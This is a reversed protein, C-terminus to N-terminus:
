GNTLVQPYNTIIGDAGLEILEHMRDEDNVTWVFATMGLAHVRDLLARDAVSEGPNVQDVWRSLEALEADSPRSSTLLGIPVAPLRDRFEELDDEDFSQMVLRGSEVAEDVFGPISRLEDALDEAVGSQECSKVEALLGARGEVLAVVERVSPIREGAFREDFWSGADLTRLEAWTFDATRYSPRGPFRQEADTTRTLDCDHMVALRGDRTHQVDIEVFDAGHELATTVAAVTNEPAVGSSGRHAIVLAGVDHTVGSGGHAVPRSNLGDVWPPPAAPDSGAPGSATSPASGAALVAAVLAAAFSAAGVIQM